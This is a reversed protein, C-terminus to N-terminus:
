QLLRLLLYLCALFIGFRQLFFDFGVFVLYPQRFPLTVADRYGGNGHQKGRALCM